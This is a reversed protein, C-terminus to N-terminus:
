IQHRSCVEKVVQDIRDTFLIAQLATIRGNKSSGEWSGTRRSKVLLAAARLLKIHQDRDLQTPYSFKWSRIRQNVPSQAKEDPLIGTATYIRCDYTRCSWPRDEYISCLKKELLHCRGQLDPELYYIDPVGPFELLLSKPVREMIEKEKKSVAINFGSKCCASCDRCPVDVECGTLIANQTLELWESFPGANWEM